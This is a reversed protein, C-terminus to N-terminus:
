ESRFIKDEVIRIKHEDALQRLEKKVTIQEEAQYRSLFDKVTIGNIDYLQHYINFKRKQVGAERNRCKDCQGCIQADQEGFYQRIFQERCGIDEGLYQIMSEMREIARRKRVDLSNKDVVFLHEPVRDRLLVVQSKGSPRNYDLLGQHHLLKLQRIVEDEGWGLFRALRSEQIRVSTTWLGEYGRLLAKTLLDIKEDKLQYQYLTETSSIMQVRSGRMSSEDISIWGDLTLIELCKFVLPGDLQFRSVFKDLDFDYVEGLGAGVAVDLYLHLSKYIRTIDEIDPFTSETRKILADKGGPKVVIICYADKGDRGARGAEQYYDEMGPPIDFHVVLRVDSKDVGMGFANTAVICSIEGRIWSEQIQDREPIPMGGHYGASSIGNTSFWGALEKCKRRHRVYVISSGKAHRLLREIYPLHDAREIVHYHLNPRAFSERIFAHDRLMLKEAIEKQVEPTASATLAILPVKPLLQRLQGIELYSPRFDHGWQSICHAEDVAILQVPLHIVRALFVETKLREPSVYLLKIRGYRANELIRDVDKPRLGSYIAEAPINREKLASVQDKMLAILPSIVITVGEKVLAPVQYCLSKGGGTPLLAFVDRDSLVQEIIEAQRPRFAPYGWYQKLIQLSTILSTHFYDL